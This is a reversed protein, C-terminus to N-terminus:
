VGDLSAKFTELFPDDVVDRPLRNWQKAVKM